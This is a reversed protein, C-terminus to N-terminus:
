VLALGEFLALKPLKNKGIKSKETVVWMPPPQFMSKDRMEARDLSAGTQGAQRGGREVEM